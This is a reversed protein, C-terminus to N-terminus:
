SRSRQRRESRKSDREKDRDRGGRDKNGGRKKDDRQHDREDRKHDHDRPSRSRPRKREEGKGDAGREREKVEKDKGGAKGDRDRDAHEREEEVKDGRSHKAKGGREREEEGKAKGGREREEEVRPKSRQPLSPEREEEGKAKSGREREEEGKAKAKGGREEEMKPKSRQLLSPEREEEGKAKSGREREEGKAKGGREREEGEKTKSREDGRDRDGRERDKERGGDRGGDKERERDGRGAATRRRRRRRRRRSRRRPPPPLPPAPPPPPPAPPKAEGNAGERAAAAATKSGGDGAGTDGGDGGDGDDEMPMGMGSLLERVKGRLRGQEDVGGETGIVEYYELLVDKILQLTAGQQHLLMLLRRRLGVDGTCWLHAVIICAQQLTFLGADMRALMLEDADPEDEEEGEDMEKTLREWQAKVAGAYRFLVEVLRDCKEFEAEVFKSAVRERRGSKPGLNQMLNFVISVAREELESEVDRGSKDGRPGKIKAKGMFIGFLHKLGGMDVLKDCPPGYRTTAFDLLKVAGYRSAKKNQLIIWMLEVGEATVFAVKNEHLMLCSCLVDFCNQMLEDEEATAPDRSKYVHIAMLLAEIGGSTGLKRQVGENGSVLIALLESAEQKNADFERQRLRTLLWKLLGTKEVLATAISPVVEIMNEFTNLCCNLGKAQHDDKEDLTMMRQVLLELANSELMADVLSKGEEAYDEVADADTLESFLELTDACIDANEHGLCALLTPVAGTDVLVPYLEPSGAVQMLSRIHEDLDAESDLFREPQDAYKLRQELNDKHRKHFANVLRRLGKADLLQIEGVDEEAEALLEDGTKAVVASPGPGDDEDDNGGGQVPDRYFGVGLEGKTFIYGERPGTFQYSASFAGGAKSGSPGAGSAGGLVSGVVQDLMWSSGKDAM